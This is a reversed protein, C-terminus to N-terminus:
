KYEKAIFPEEARVYRGIFIIGNTKNDVIMFTFPHDAKFKKPKPMSGGTSGDMMEVITAAGAETKEENIEIYAKHNVKNILLPVESTIGSFDAHRTFAKELGLKILPEKLSYTTELKFKPISLKVELYGTNHLITDLTSNTFINEIDILGYRSKPLLICFSKDNGEYPKSIFQFDKNEYYQLYETKNMFDVDSKEKNISYFYDSNTLGKNFEDRWKGIFCITNLIILRTDTNIEKPCIIDKILGNTKNTVWNNIENSASIKQKFDVTKLDSSYKEIIQNKYDEIVSFDKQIWIANSINLYNSSDRLSILNESFDKCNTLSESNDIHLVKEFEAKTENKAGEHAVLLAYYTSLPSVFLNENDTKIQGYLDFSYANLSKTLRDVQSYTSFTTLLLIILFTYHKM